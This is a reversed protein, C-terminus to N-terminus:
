GKTRYTRFVKSAKREGRGKRMLNHIFDVAGVTKKRYHYNVRAPL